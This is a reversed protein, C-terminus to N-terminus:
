GCSSGVMKGDSTVGNMFDLAQQHIFTTTGSAVFPNDMPVTLSQILNNEWGQSLQLEFQTNSPPYWSWQNLFSNVTYPGNADYWENALQLFESIVAANPNTSIEKVCQGNSASHM